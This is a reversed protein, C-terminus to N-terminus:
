KFKTEERVEAALDATRVAQPVPQLRDHKLLTRTALLGAILAAVGGLVLGWRPGAYEAVAGVILGGIPTSGLMAMTWLSMVRGRMSINAGLQLSTNALSTFNISFFGVLLMGAVAWDLTPMVAVLLMSFGFLIASGVLHHLAVKKRGAALLGGIVSGIGFSVWLRSYASATTAFTFQALIPLSIQFEYSFTGIIAAMILIDRLLPTKLVYDWAEKLQRIPHLREKNNNIVQLQKTNMMVLAVLVAVTSLGNALFCWAIGLTAILVAGISPGVARGLNVQTSNLVVANKVYEHGVLESVFSQRTPNDVSNILGFLFALTYIMWMQEIGFLVILGFTIQQFFFATQTALLVRRKPFRDAIMGGFPTVLLLPLFQLAVVLGVQTGSGTLQLVLWGQAVTQMWTGCISIGQGIFYLRYNRVVLSAFTRKTRRTLRAPAEILRRIM